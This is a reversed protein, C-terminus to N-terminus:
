EASPVRSDPRVSHCGPACPRRGPDRGSAMVWRGPGPTVCRAPTACGPQRRAGRNADRVETPTACGPQRRARRNTSACAVRCSRPCSNPHTVEAPTRSDALPVAQRPHQRGPLPRSHDRGPIPAINSSARARGNTSTCRLRAPARCNRDRVGTPAPAHTEAAAHARAPSRSRLQCAHGRGSHTVGVATRSGSQRAHGRSGHTVGVATRSGSQRAHVRSAHMLGRLRGIGRGRAQPERLHGSRAATGTITTLTCGYM